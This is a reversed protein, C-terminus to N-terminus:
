GIAQSAVQFGLIRAGGPIGSEILSPAVDLLDSELADEIALDLLDLAVADDDVGAAAGSGVPKVRLVARRGSPPL